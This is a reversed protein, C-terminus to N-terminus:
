NYYARWNGNYNKEFNERSDFHVQMPDADFYRCADYDRSKSQLATRWADQARKGAGSKMESNTEFFVIACGFIRSVLWVAPGPMASRIADVDAETIAAAAEARVANEFESFIVLTKDQEDPELRDLVGLERAAKLVRKQKRTNYGSGDKKHFSAGDGRRDFIINLRPLTGDHITDVHVNIPRPAAYHAAIWESLQREPAPIAAKGLKIRLTERYGPDSKSIM